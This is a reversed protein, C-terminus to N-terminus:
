DCPANIDTLRDMGANTTATSRDVTAAASFQGCHRPGPPCPIELSGPIGVSQCGSRLTSQFTGTAGPCEEGATHPSRRNTVAAM